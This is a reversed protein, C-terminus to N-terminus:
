LTNPHHVKAAEFPRRPCSDIHDRDMFQQAAVIHVIEEPTKGIDSISSIALLELIDPITPCRQAVSDELPQDADPRRM